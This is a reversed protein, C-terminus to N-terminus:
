KGGIALITLHEGNKNAVIEYGFNEILKNAFKLIGKRSFQWEGDETDNNSIELTLYNDKRSLKKNKRIDDMTIAKGINVVLDQYFSYGDMGCAHYSSIKVDVKNM